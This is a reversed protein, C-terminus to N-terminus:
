VYYEERKNKFYYENHGQAGHAFVANGRLAFAHCTKCLDLPCSTFYPSISRGENQETTFIVEKNITIFETKGDTNEKMCIDCSVITVNRKM